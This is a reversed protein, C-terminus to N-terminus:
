RKKARTKDDRKKVKKVKAVKPEEIKQITGEHNRVMGRTIRREYRDAVNPKSLKSFKIKCM